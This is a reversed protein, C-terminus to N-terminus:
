PSSYYNYVGLRWRWFILRNDTDLYFLFHLEGDQGRGGINGIPTYEWTQSIPIVYPGSQYTYLENVQDEHFTLRYNDYNVRNDAGNLNWQMLQGAYTKGSLPSTDTRPILRGESLDGVVLWEVVSEADADVEFYGMDELIIRVREVTYAIERQGDLTYVTAKGDADFTMIYPPTGSQNVGWFTEGVMLYDAIRFDASTPEPASEEDKSCSTFVAMFFLLLVSLNCRSVSKM